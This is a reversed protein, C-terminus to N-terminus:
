LCGSMDLEVGHGEGWASGEWVEHNRFVLSTNSDGKTGVLARLPFRASTPSTHTLSPPPPFPGGEVCVCTVVGKKKKCTKTNRV